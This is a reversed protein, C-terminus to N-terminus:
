PIAKGAHIKFPTYGKIKVSKVPKKKPAKSEERKVQEKSPVAVLNKEAM